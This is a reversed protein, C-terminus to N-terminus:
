LVKFCRVQTVSIDFVWLGVRSACVGSILMGLSTNYDDIFLSAYSISLCLFQFTVSIMGSDVLTIRKSLFNFVFTGFLGIAAAVGRWIGIAEMSMGRWVLYATMIGGFTLANLYSLDFDLNNSDSIRDLLSVLLLSVTSIIWHRGMSGVSQSINEVWRSSIRAQM